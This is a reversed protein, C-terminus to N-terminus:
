RGLARRTVNCYEVIDSESRWTLVPANRAAAQALFTKQAETYTGRHSKIEAIQWHSFGDWVLWDVPREIVAILLGLQRALTLMPSANADSRHILRRTM